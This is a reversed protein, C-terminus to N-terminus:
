LSAGPFYGVRVQRGDDLYGAYVLPPREWVADPRRAADEPSLPVCLGIPGGLGPEFEAELADFTVAVLDDVAAAAAPLVFSRFVWFRRGGIAPVDAPLASSTGAIEGAADLAVATVQPLRARAQAEDLAGHAKWFGVLRESWGDDLRGRVLEVAWGDGTAPPAPADDVPARAGPFYKVRVHHGRANDGVYVLGTRPGAPDTFAARLGPHEIEVLFGPARTDEGGVFRERLVDMGTTLVRWGVESNRHAEAVFGRFHWMDLRLQENRAIYATTVAALGGDETTAVLLVESLRRRAEAEPLGAAGTWLALVDAGSVLDQEDYLDIRYALDTM